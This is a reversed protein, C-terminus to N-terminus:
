RRLKGWTLLCSLYLRGFDNSKVDRALQVAGAALDILTGVDEQTYSHSRDYDAVHREAQLRFFAIAINRVESPVSAGALGGALHAPLTGGSFTRSADNMEGHSFGRAITHRM